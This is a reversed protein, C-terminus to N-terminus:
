NRIEHLVKWPVWKKFDKAEKKKSGLVAAYLGSETLLQIGSSHIDSHQLLVKAESHNLSIKEYEDLRKLLERNEGYELITPVENSIFFVENNDNKITTLNGFIKHIFKNETKQLM